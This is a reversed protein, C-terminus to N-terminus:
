IRRSEHVSHWIRKFGDTTWKVQEHIERADENLSAMSERVETRVDRNVCGWNSTGSQMVSGTALTLAVACPFIIKGLGFRQFKTGAGM